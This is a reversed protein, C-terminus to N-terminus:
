ISEESACNEENFAVSLILILFYKTPMRQDEDEYTLDLTNTLFKLTAELTM